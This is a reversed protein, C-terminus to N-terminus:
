HQMSTSPEVPPYPTPYREAPPASPKTAKYIPQKMPKSVYTGGEGAGGPIVKSTNYPTERPHVIKSTFDAINQWTRKAGGTRYRILAPQYTQDGSNAAYLQKWNFPGWTPAYMATRRKKCSLYLETKISIQASCEIHTGTDTFLPIMKVFWQTPGYKYKEYETGSFMLDIYKYEWQTLAQLGNPVASKMEHWWWGMPVVPINAYNPISYDNIPPSAEWRNALREPETADTFQYSNPRQRKSHYPGEPTYPYWWSLLDLNFWKGQDCNHAEWTFTIANKGPRLEMINDPRNLPDWICGSPRYHENGSPVPFVGSQQQGTSYDNPHNDYTCRETARSNPASWLYIPLSQRYNTNTGYQCALGEKYLLNHPQKGDYQYYNHWNTEYLDDKYAMGYISNNFATFLTNGQIALQTTMPICNFITCKMGKVHYAEYNITLEAWQKPTCVHKWLINPIIHWGTNILHTTLISSDDKPYVYPGNSIYAMWVNSITHEEAM